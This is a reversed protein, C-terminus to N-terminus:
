AAWICDLVENGSVTEAKRPRFNRLTGEYDEPAPPLEMEMPPPLDMPADEFGQLDTVDATKRSLYEVAQLEQAAADAESGLALKQEQERQRQLMEEHQRKREEEEKQKAEEGRLRDLREREAREREERERREREQKDQM